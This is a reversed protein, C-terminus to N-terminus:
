RVTQINKHSFLSNGSSRLDAIDNEIDAVSIDALETKRDETWNGKGTGFQRLFYVTGVSGLERNLVEMGKERIFRTDHVDFVMERHKEIHGDIMTQQM